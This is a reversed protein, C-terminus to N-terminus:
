NQNNRDWLYFFDEVVDVKEAASTKKVSHSPVCIINKRELLKACQSEVRVYYRLADPFGFRVYLQIDVWCSCL